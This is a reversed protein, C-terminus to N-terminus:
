GSRDLRLAALHLRHDGVEQGLHERAAHRIGAHQAALRAALHAEAPALGLPDDGRSEIRM